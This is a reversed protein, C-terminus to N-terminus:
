AGATRTVNGSLKVTVDATMKDDLPAAMEFGTVFGTASWTAGSTDGGSEDYTLTVTEATADIPPLTDPNFHVTVRLEGPDSLHGPIFTRNGFTGAGAAATGMHSTEISNRSIGNWAVDIVEASYGSTSFTLSLGTGVDVNASM